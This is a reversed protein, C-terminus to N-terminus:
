GLGKNARTLERAAIPKLPDPAARVFSKAAAFMYLHWTVIALVAGAISRKKITLLILASGWLIGFSFILAKTLPVGVLTGLWSFLFAALYLSPPLFVFWAIRVSKWWWPRGIASRLFTGYAQMRGNGWLRRLMGISSEKHGTHSVAVVPLRSLSWGAQRLRVGLEAEECAKLWRHGLYDVSLIASARYLGGGGLSDVVAVQSISAYRKARREDAPTNIQTDVTVGGVGAVSPNAVLYELARSLFGPQLVMDGDILYLFEGRAFQYGLQVAAGCGRDSAHEFQVIRVPFTKAIEVTRDTSLSDALIVEGGVEAIERVAAELCGAIKAEENLAKVLISVRVPNTVGRMGCHM